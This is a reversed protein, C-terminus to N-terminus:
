EKLPRGGLPNSRNDLRKPMKERPAMFEERTIYGDGNTDLRKFQQEARAMSDAVFEDYSVKGDRSTDMGHFRNEVGKLPMGGQRDAINERAKQLEDSTLFGDHYVDLRRFLKEARNKADAVFEDHSIRGDHDADMVDFRAERRSEATQAGATGAALVVTMFVALGFIRITHSM